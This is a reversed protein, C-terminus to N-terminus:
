DESNETIIRLALGIIEWNKTVAYLETCSFTRSTCHAFGRQVFVIFMFLTKYFFLCHIQITWSNSHRWEANNQTRKQKPQYCYQTRYVCWDIVSIPCSTLDELNIWTTFHVESLAVVLSGAMSILLLQLYFVLQKENAINCSTKELKKLPHSLKWHTACFEDFWYYNKKEHSCIRTGLIKFWMVQWFNHNQFELM